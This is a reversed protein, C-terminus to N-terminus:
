ENQSHKFCDVRLFNRLLLDSEIDYVEKLLVSYTLGSVSTFEIDGYTDEEQSIDPPTEAAPTDEGAQRPTDNIQWPRTCGSFLILILVLVAVLLAKKHM